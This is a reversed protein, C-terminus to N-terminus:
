QDCRRASVTASTTRQLVSRVDVRPRRRGELAPQERTHHAGRQQTGPSEAFPGNVDVLEAGGHARGVRWNSSWASAVVPSRSGDPHGLWTSALEIDDM